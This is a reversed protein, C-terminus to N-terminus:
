SCSRKQPVRVSNEDAGVMIENVSRHHPLISLSERYIFCELLCVAFGEIRHGHHHSVDGEKGTGRLDPDLVLEPM